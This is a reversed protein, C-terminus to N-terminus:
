NLMSTFLDLYFWTEMLKERVYSVCATYTRFVSVITSPIPNFLLCAHFVSATAIVVSVKPEFSLPTEIWSTQICDLSFYIMKYLKLVAIKNENNTQCVRYM